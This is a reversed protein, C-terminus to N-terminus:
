AHKSANFSGGVGGCTNYKPTGEDVAHKEAEKQWVFAGCGGFGGVNNYRKFRGSVWGQLFGKSGEGDWGETGNFIKVM